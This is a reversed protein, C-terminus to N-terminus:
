HGSASLCRIRRVRAYEAGGQSEEVEKILATSSPSSISRGEAQVQEIKVCGEAHGDGLADSALIRIDAAHDTASNLM